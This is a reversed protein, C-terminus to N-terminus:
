GGAQDELTEVVQDPTMWTAQDADVRQQLTTFLLELDDAAAITGLSWTVQFVKAGAQSADAWAEDFTADITEVDDPGIPCGTEPRTTDQNEAACAFNVAAPILWVGQDKHELWNGSDDSRWPYLRDALATPVEDHCRGAPHGCDAYDSYEPPIEDLSQLCYAVLGGVEVFGEAESLGIWDMSTCVGSVHVPAGIGLADLEALSQELQATAAAEDPETVYLSMHPVVQHGAAAAEQLLTCEGAVEWALFEISAELALSVDFRAATDLVQQVEELLQEHQELDSDYGELHLSLALMMAGDALAPPAAAPAVADQVAGPCTGGRCGTWGLLGVTLLTPSLRM